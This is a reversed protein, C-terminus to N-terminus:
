RHGALWECVWLTGLVVAIVLFGLLITEATIAIAFQAASMARM